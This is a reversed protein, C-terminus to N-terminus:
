KNAAPRTAESFQRDTLERVGASPVTVRQRGRVDTFTIPTDYRGRHPEGPLTDRTYYVSGSARDTIEYNYRPVCGAALAATVTLVGCRAKRLM